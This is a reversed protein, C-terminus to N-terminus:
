PRYSKDRESDTLAKQGFLDDPLSTNYKVSQAILRTHRDNKVDTFLVDTMTWIGQIKEIKLAEIKKVLEDQKYLEVYLPLLSGMHICARRKTYSSNKPDVPTSELITCPAGQYDGKGVLHHHDAAVKRDELDEYFIESGVFRGGKREAPIRRAQGFDPLFVWQDTPQAGHNLSLLSTGAVDGPKTFRILLMVEGPKAEKRFWYYERVRPEGAGQLLEMRGFWAADVGHPRDYVQQALREAAADSTEARASVTANAALAVLLLKFSNATMIVDGDNTRMPRRRSFCQMAWNINTFRRRFGRAKEILFQRTDKFVGPFPMGNQAPRAARAKRRTVHKERRTRAARTLRM